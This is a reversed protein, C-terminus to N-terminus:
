RLGLRRVWHPKRKKSLLYVGGAVAALAWVWPSSPVMSAALPAPAAPAPAPSPRVVPAAYSCAAPAAQGYVSFDGPDADAIVRGLGARTLVGYKGDVALPPAYHVNYAAQFVSVAQPSVACGNNQLVSLLTTAADNLDNPLPAGAEGAGMGLAGTGSERAPGADPGSWMPSPMPGQVIPGMRSGFRSMAQDLSMTPSIAGSLSRNESLADSGINMYGLIAGMASRVDSTRVHLVTALDVARLGRLTPDALLAQAAINAGPLLFSPVPGLSADVADASVPGV